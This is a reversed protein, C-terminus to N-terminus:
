KTNQDFLIMMNNMEEYFNKFYTDRESKEKDLEIIRM